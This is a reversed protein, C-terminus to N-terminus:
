PFPFTPRTGYDLSRTFIGAYDVTDQTVCGGLSDVGLNIRSNTVTWNDPVGGTYNEFSGNQLYPVTRASAARAVTPTSTHLIPSMVLVFLLMGVFSLRKLLTAHGTITTEMRDKQEM